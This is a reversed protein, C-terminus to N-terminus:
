GEKIEFSVDKLAWIIDDSDEDNFTNLARVRRFNSLPSKVWSIMAGGLTDHIEEKAGIRYRKSLNEVKIAINSM